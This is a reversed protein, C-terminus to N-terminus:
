LIPLTCHPALSLACTKEGKYLFYATSASSAPNAHEVVNAQSASAFIGFVYCWYEISDIALFSGSHIIETLSLPM